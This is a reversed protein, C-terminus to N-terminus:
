EWSTAKSAKMRNDLSEEVYANIAESRWGGHRKLLRHPVQEAAAATVGGSRLSHLGYKGPSMGAMRLAEGFLERARGYQLTGKKTRWSRKTKVLNSLLHESGHLGAAEILRETLTVAGLDGEERAIVIMSGKRMQDNKRKGLRLVMHSDHFDIDQVTIQEMDNWRLFGAFGLAVVVATRLRLCDGEKGELLKTVIVKVEAKTLPEKRKPAQACSRRAARLVQDVMSDLPSELCAKEHAWKIAAVAKNLPGASEATRLLEMLYLTVSVSEAPLAEFGHEEAWSKWRSFAAGYAKVTAPAHTGLVLRRAESGLEELGSSRATEDLDKWKGKSLLEVAALLMYVVDKVSIYLLRGM